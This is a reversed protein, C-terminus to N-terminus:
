KLCFAAFEWPSSFRSASRSRKPVTGAQLPLSPVRITDGIGEQLLLALAATSAVIGKAGM